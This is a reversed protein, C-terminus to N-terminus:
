ATERVSEARVTCSQFFKTVAIGSECRKEFVFRRGDQLESPIDRLQQSKSRCLQQHMRYGM